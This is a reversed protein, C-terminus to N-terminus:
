ILREDDSRLAQPDPVDGLYVADLNAALDSFGVVHQAPLSELAEQPFPYHYDLQDATLILPGRRWGPAEPDLSIQGRFHDRWKTLMAKEEETLAARTTAAIVYCEIGLERVADAVSVLGALDDSTLKQQGGKCEAVAMVPRDDRSRWIAICDIEADIGPGSINLSGDILENSMHLTELLRIMTLVVPLSGHRKLDAFFGSPRFKWASHPLAPGLRFSEGCRPCAMEDALEAPVLGSHVSCHPCQLWLVPRLVEKQILTRLEDAATGVNRYRAFAGGDHIARLADRFTWAAESSVVKRVGHLRLHRCGWLGGLRKIIRDAAEGAPSTTATMGGLALVAKLVERRHVPQLEVSTDDFAAFVSVGRDGTRVQGFLLMERSAWSNLRAIWPLDITHDGLDHTRYTGLTVLWKPRGLDQTPASDFPREPLPVFLRKRGGDSDINALVSRSASRWLCPETLGARSRQGDLGTRIVGFGSQETLAALRPPVGAEPNGLWATFAPFHQGSRREFQRRLRAESLDTLTGEEQAPWFTVRCGAARLNWYALLTAADDTHGVVAGFARPGPYANLQDGTLGLPTLVDRNAELEAAAITKASLGELFDREFVKRHSGERYAGFLVTYCAALPDDEEWTPLVARSEATGFRFATEFYHRCIPRIDLYPYSGGDLPEFPDRTIAPARLHGLRDMVSQQDHTPPRITTVLDALYFEAAAVTEDIGRVELVPNHIGGWLHTNARAAEVVDQLSDPRVLTLVRPPRFGVNISTTPM